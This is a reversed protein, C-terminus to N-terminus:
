TESSAELSRLRQFANTMEDYKPIGNSDFNVIVAALDKVGLRQEILIELKVVDINEIISVMWLDDLQKISRYVNFVVDENNLSFKM